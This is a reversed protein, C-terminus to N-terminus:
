IQEDVEQEYNISMKAPWRLFSDEKNRISIFTEEGVPLGSLIVLHIDGPEGSLQDQTQDLFLKKQGYKVYGITPTPTKWFIMAEQPSNWTVDFKLAQNQQYNFIVLSCILGIVLAISQVIVQRKTLKLKLKIM